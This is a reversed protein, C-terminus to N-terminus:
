RCRRCLLRMCELLRNILVCLLPGVNDMLVADIVVKDVLAKRIIDVAVSGDDAEICKHGLQAMCQMIIKRNLASDDVVLLQMHDRQRLFNITSSIGHREEDIDNYRQSAELLQTNRFLTLAGSGSDSVGGELSPLDVFLAQRGGHQLVGIKGGHL